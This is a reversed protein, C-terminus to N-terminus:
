FAKRGEHAWFHQQWHALLVKLVFCWATLGRPTVEWQWLGSGLRCAGYQKDLWQAGKDKGSPQLGETKKKGVGVCVNGLELGSQPLWLPGTPGPPDAYGWFRSTRPWSGELSLFLSLRLALKRGNLSM